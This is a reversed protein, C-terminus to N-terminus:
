PPHSLAQAVAVGDHLHQADSAQCDQGAPSLLHPPLMSFPWGPSSPPFSPHLINTVGM